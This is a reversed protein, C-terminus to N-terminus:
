AQLQRSFYLYSQSILGPRLVRLFHTESLANVGWKGTIVPLKLGACIEQTRALQKDKTGPWFCVACVDLKHLKKFRYVSEELAARARATDALLLNEGTLGLTGFQVLNSKRLVDLQEPTLLNQWPEQYPDQWQNYTGIPEQPFCVTARARYKKLLPFVDTYVSEYGGAFVLLIPRVPLKKQLDLPTIFTYKQQTLWALMKALKPASTWENKLRSHKPPFGIKQYVLVPLFPKM